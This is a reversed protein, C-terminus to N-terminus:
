TKELSSAFLSVSPCCLSPVCTVSCATDRLERRETENRHPSEVADTQQYQGEAARSTLSRRRQPHTLEVSVDNQHRFCLQALAGRIPMPVSALSSPSASAGIWGVMGQICHAEKWGRPRTLAKRTTNQLAHDDDDFNPIICHKVKFYSHTLQFHSFNSLILNTRNKCRIARKQLKTKMTM